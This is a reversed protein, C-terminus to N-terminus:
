RYKDIFDTTLPDQLRRTMQLTSKVAVDLVLLTSALWAVAGLHHTVSPYNPVAVPTSRCSVCLQPRSASVPMGKHCCLLPPWWTEPAIGPRTAHYCTVSCRCSSFLKKPAFIGPLAVFSFVFHVSRFDDM